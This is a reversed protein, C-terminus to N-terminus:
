KGSACAIAEVEILANKPLNGVEFAARAPCDATFYKAYIGNMAAFDAISKLLVTTKVVNSYDLGAAKLIAGINRMVQETQAEIGEPMQGIAPVIPIQGSIFVFGNAEVAQSYPGIAQPADATAIIRKM